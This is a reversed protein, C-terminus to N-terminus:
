KGIPLAFAANTITSVAIQESRPIAAVYRCGGRRCQGTPSHIHVHLFLLHPGYGRPKQSRSNVKFAGKNRRNALLDPVGLLVTYSEICFKGECHEKM